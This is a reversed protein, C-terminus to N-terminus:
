ISRSSFMMPRGQQFIHKKERASKGKIVIERPMLLYGIFPKEDKKQGHDEKSRTEKRQGRQGVIQGGHRM